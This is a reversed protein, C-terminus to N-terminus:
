PIGSCEALYKNIEQDSYSCLRSYIFITLCGVTPNSKNQLVLLWDYNFLVLLKIVNLVLQSSVDMM